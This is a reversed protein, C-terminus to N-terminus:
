IMEYLKKLAICLRGLLFLPYGWIFQLTIWYLIRVPKIPGGEVSSFLILFSLVDGARMEGACRYVGWFYKLSCTYKKGGWRNVDKRTMGIFIPIFPFFIISVLVRIIGIFIKKMANQKKFVLFTELSLHLEKKQVPVLLTEFWFGGRSRQAM